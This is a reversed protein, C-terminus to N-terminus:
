RLPQSFWGMTKPDFGVILLGDGAIEPPVTVAMSRGISADPGMSKGFHHLLRATRSYRHNIELEYALGQNVFRSALQSVIANKFLIEGGPGAVVEIRVARGQRAIKLSSQSSAGGAFNNVTILRTLPGRPAAAMELMAQTAYVGEDNVLLLTPVSATAAAKRIGEFEARAQREVSSFGALTQPLSTWFILFQAVALGAFALGFRRRLKLPGTGEGAQEAAVVTALIGFVAALRMFRVGPAAWIVALAAGLCLLVRLLPGRGAKGPRALAYVVLAYGTLNMLAGAVVGISLKGLWSSSPEWPFFASAFFVITNVVGQRLWGQAPELVYARNVGGYFMWRLAGFCALPLLFVPLMRLRPRAMTGDRRLVFLIAAIVPTIIGTEHSLLSALQCVLSLTIRLGPHSSDEPPLLLFASLAFLAMLVTGRSAASQFAEYWAPSFAYVMLLLSLLLPESRTERRALAVFLVLSIALGLLNTVLNLPGTGPSFLSELWFTANVVPRCFDTHLQPLDPFNVFYSSFGRTIWLGPDPHYQRASHLILAFDDTNIHFARLYPLLLISYAVPVM